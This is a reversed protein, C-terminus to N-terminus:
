AAHGTIILGYLSKRVSPHALRTDRVISRVEEIRYSEEVSAIFHPRVEKPRAMLWVMLKWLGSMCRRLDTIYYSGGPRLVRAVENLVPRPDLWEHLSASSFVCDFRKDEFPMHCADALVYKARPTLGYQAANRRALDVMDRSIDVGMLTTGAIHKLWELGLYGPGPGIELANGGRIGGAVLAPVTALFRPISFGYWGRDRMRRAMADLIQCYTHVETRATVTM